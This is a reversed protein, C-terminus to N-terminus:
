KGFQQQKIMEESAKKYNLYAQFKEENDKSHMFTSLYASMKDTRKLGVRKRSNEMDMIEKKAKEVDNALLDSQSPQAQRATKSDTSTMNNLADRVEASKKPDLRSYDVADKLAQAITQVWRPPDNAYQKVYYLYWDVKKHDVYITQKGVNYKQHTDMKQSDITSQLAVKLSKPMDPRVQFASRPDEGKYWKAFANVMYATINGYDVPEYERKQFKDNDGGSLEASAPTPDLEDSGFNIMAKLTNRGVDGDPKLGEKKQFAKVSSATKAGYWGDPKPLGTVIKGAKNKVKYKFDNDSLFQQVAIVQPKILGKKGQKFMGGHDYSQFWEGVDKLSMKKEEFLIENALM